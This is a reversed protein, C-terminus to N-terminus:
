TPLLLEFDSVIVLVPPELTVIVPALEPAAANETLPSESGVVRVAPCLTVKETTNAGADAPLALALKVTVEFADFGDNATANVPVPVAGPCSPTLGALWLKPLTVTPELPAFVPVSLAVPEATCTVPTVDSLGSNTTLPIEKGAVMAAPPVAENVTVNVGDALPVAVPFMVNALLAEFPGVTWARVPLPM